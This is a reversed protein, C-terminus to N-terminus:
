RWYTGGRGGKKGVPDKIPKPLSRTGLKANRMVESTPDRLQWQKLYEGFNQDVQPGRHQWGWILGLQPLKRNYMDKYINYQAVASNWVMQRDVNANQMTYEQFAERANKFSTVASNVDIPVNLKRDNIINKLGQMAANAYHESAKSPQYNGNKDFSGYAGPGYEALQAFKAFQELTTTADHNGADALSILQALHNSNFFMGMFKDYVARDAAPMAEVQARVKEADAIAGKSQAWNLITYESMKDFYMQAQTSNLWNPDKAVNQQIDNLWGGMWDLKARDNQLDKQFGQQFGGANIAPNRLEAPNYGANAFEQRLRQAENFFEEVTFKDGSAYRGTNWENLLRNWQDLISRRHQEKARLEQGYTASKGPAGQGEAEVQRMLEDHLGGHMGTFGHQLYWRWKEGYPISDKGTLTQFLTHIRPREDEVQQPESTIPQMRPYDSTDPTNQVNATPPTYPVNWPIVNDTVVGTSANDSKPPSKKGSGKGKSKNSKQQQQQQTQTQQPQMSSSKTSDVTNPGASPSSMPTQQSASSMALDPTQTAPTMTPSSLGKMALWQERTM